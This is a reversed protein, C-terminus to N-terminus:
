KGHEAYRYAERDSIIGDLDTDAVVVQRNFYANRSLQARLTRIVGGGHDYRDRVANDFTKAAEPSEYVVPNKEVQPNLVRKTDSSCGGLPPLLAALLLLAILTSRVNM